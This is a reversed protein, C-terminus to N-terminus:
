PLTKREAEKEELGKAPDGGTFLAIGPGPESMFNGGAGTLSKTQAFQSWGLCPEPTLM